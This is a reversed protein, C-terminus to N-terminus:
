PPAPAGYRERLFEDWTQRGYRPEALIHDGRKFAAAARGVVPIGLVRAPRGIARRYSRALDEFRHVEPGSIDPARGTPGEGVLEALRRAAERAAIPQFRLGGLVAVFPLRDFPRLSRVVLEHFQTARQISWALGSAVIRQEAALKARFYYYPHDDIGVISIYVLHASPAASEIARLLRGTGQVDVAGPRTPSTACHVIADVGRVASELGEGTKLDGPHSEVTPASSAARHVLARVTHGREVLERVVHRGLDGAAGTVLVTTM